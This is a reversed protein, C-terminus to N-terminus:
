VNRKESMALLLPLILIPLSIYLGCCGDCQNGSSNTQEADKPMMAKRDPSLDMCAANGSSGGKAGSDIRGNEGAKTPVRQVARQKLDEGLVKGSNTLKPAIKARNVAPAKVACPLSIVAVAFFVWVPKHQVAKRFVAMLQKSM